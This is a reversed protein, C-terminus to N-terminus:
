VTHSLRRSPVGDGDFDYVEFTTRILKHLQPEAKIQGTIKRGSASTAFSSQKPAEFTTFKSQSIFRLLRELHNEAQPKDIWQARWGEYVMGEDGAVAQM